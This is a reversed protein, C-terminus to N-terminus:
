GVFYDLIGVLSWELGKSVAKSAGSRKWAKMAMGACSALILSSGGCARSVAISTM